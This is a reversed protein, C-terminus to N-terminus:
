WHLAFVIAVAILREYVHIANPQKVTSYVTKHWKHSILLYTDCQRARSWLSVFRVFRVFIYLQKNTVHVAVDSLRTRHWESHSAIKSKKFIQVFAIPTCVVATNILRTYRRTACLSFSASQVVWVNNSNWKNLLYILWVPLTKQLSKTKNTFQAM